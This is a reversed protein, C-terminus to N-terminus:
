HTVHLYHFLRTWRHGHNPWQALLLLVHLCGVACLEQELEVGRPVLAAVQDLEVGSPELAAVQDLELAHLEAAVGLATM